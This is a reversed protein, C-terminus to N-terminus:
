IKRPNETKMVQRYDKWDKFSCSTMLLLSILILITTKKL